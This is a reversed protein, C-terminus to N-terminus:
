NGIPAATLERDDRCRSVPQHFHSTGAFTFIHSTSSGALWPLHLAQQASFDLIAGEAPVLAPCTTATPVADLFSLEFRDKSNKYYKFCLIFVVILLLVVPSAFILVHVLICDFLSYDLSIEIWIPAYYPLVWYFGYTFLSTWSFLLYQVFGM